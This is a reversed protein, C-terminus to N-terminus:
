QRAVKAAELMRGFEESPATFRVYSPEGALLREPGKPNAVEVRVRRTRSAADATPAAEIVKGERVIPLGAMDFLV